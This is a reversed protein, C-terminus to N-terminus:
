ALPELGLEERTQNLVDRNLWGEILALDLWDNLGDSALESMERATEDTLSGDQQFRPEGLSGLEQAIHELISGGLGLATAEAARKSKETSKFKAM